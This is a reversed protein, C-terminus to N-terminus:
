SASLDWFVPYQDARVREMMAIVILITSLSLIPRGRLSSFRRVMWATAFRAPTDAIVTDFTMLRVPLALSAVRSLTSEAM